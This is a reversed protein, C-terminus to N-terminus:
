SGAVISKWDNKSSLNSFHNILLFIMDSLIRVDECIFTLFGKKILNKRNERLKKINRLNESVCFTQERTIEDYEWAVVNIIDIDICYIYLYKYTYWYKNEEEEPFGFIGTSPVHPQCVLCVPLESLIWTESISFVYNQPSSSVVTVLLIVHFCTLSLSLLNWHHVNPRCIHVARLCLSSQAASRKKNRRHAWSQSMPVLCDGTLNLVSRM